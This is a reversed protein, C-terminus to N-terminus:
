CRVHGFYNSSIHATKSFHPKQTLSKEHTILLIRIVKYHNWYLKVASSIIIFAPVTMARNSIPVQEKRIFLHSFFYEEAEMIKDDWDGYVSFIIYIQALHKHCFAKNNKIWAGNDYSLNAKFVRNATRLKAPRSVRYLEIIAWILPVGSFRLM